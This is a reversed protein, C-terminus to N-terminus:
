LFFFKGFFCVVILLFGLLFFMFLYFNKVLNILNCLYGFILSAKFFIKGPFRIRRM